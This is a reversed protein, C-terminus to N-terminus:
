SLEQLFKRVVHGDDFPIVKNGVIQGQEHGKGAVVLLDGEGLNKIAEFIATERDGIEIAGPCGCLTQQRIDAADESRPNDDTVIVNDAYEAAVKGMEPRKGPYRDGGCGFVVHLHSTTHPRLATLVSALADPTHAFDVYVAAGNPRTGVHQMRGIVGQLKSIAPMVLDANEGMGIALGAACLANMAQFTGSLPLEIQYKQGFVEIELMQGDPGPAISALRLDTGSQGYSLVRIGRAHCAQRFTDAYPDDANIVAAGGEILLESFLRVKAELYTAVSRHYDLHDRGLNTFAAASVRVGDLRYQDLGHSSAELALRQIDHGALERLSRHVDVSDPTTLTFDHKLEPAADGFGGLEVGLTGASAARYGLVAWIQRLFSASSTKGNTGTIAAVGTPQSGFFNGAAEAYHKRPNPSPILVAGGPVLSPSTDQVALVAVAGNAVAQAIFDRGDVQGGPLAAFLFGPEVLRSDCTLGSINIENIHARHEVPGLDGNFADILRM